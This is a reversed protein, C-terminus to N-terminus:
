PLFPSENRAMGTPLSDALISAVAGAAIPRLHWTITSLRVAEDDAVYSVYATAHWYLGLGVPMFFSGCIGLYGPMALRMGAIPRWASHEHHAPNFRPAYPITRGLGVLGALCAVPQPLLLCSLLQDAAWNAGGALSLSASLASGLTLPLLDLTRWCSIAEYRGRAGM